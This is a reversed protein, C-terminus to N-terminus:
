AARDKDLALHLELLADARDQMARLDQAIGDRIAPDLQVIRRAAQTDLEPQVRCVYNVLETTTPERLTTM